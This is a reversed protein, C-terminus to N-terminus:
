LNFYWGLECLKHEDLSEMDLIVTNKRFNITLTIFPYSVKLEWSSTSSKEKLSIEKETSIESLTIVFLCNTNCPVFIVGGRESLHSIQWFDIYLYWFNLHKLAMGCNNKSIIM